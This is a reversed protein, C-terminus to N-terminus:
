PRQASPVASCLSLPVREAAGTAARDFNDKDVALSHFTKTKSAEHHQPVAITSVLDESAPEVLETLIKDLSDLFLGLDGSFTLGILSRSFREPRLLMSRCSLGCLLVVLCMWVRRQLTDRYMKLKRLVEGSAFRFCAAALEADLREWKRSCVELTKHTPAKEVAKLFRMTRRRSRNSAASCNVYLEALWSQFGPGTPPRGLDIPKVVARRRDTEEGISEESSDKGAINVDPHAPIAWRTAEVAVPTEPGCVPMSSECVLSRERFPDSVAKMMLIGLCEPLPEVTDTELQRQQQALGSGHSVQLRAQHLEQRLESFVNEEHWALSEANEVFDQEHKKM